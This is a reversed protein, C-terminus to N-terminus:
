KPRGGFTRTLDERERRLDFTKVEVRRGQERMEKILEKSSPQLHSRRQNAIRRVLATWWRAIM